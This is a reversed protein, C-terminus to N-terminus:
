HTYEHFVLYIYIYYLDKNHWHIESCLLGNYNEYIIKIGAWFRTFLIENISNPKFLKEPLKKNKINCFTVCLNNYKKLM